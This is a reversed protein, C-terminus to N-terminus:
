TRMALFELLMFGRTRTTSAGAREETGPIELVGTPTLSEQYCTSLKYGLFSLTFRQLPVDDVENQFPTAKTEEKSM